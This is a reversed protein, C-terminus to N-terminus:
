SEILADIGQYPQEIPITIDLAEITLPQNEETCYYIDLKSPDGRTPDVFNYQLTHQISDLITSVLQGVEFMHFEEKQQQPPGTYIASQKSFSVTMGGKGTTVQESLTLNWGTLQAIGEILKDPTLEGEYELPYEKFNGNSGIYLQATQHQGNQQANDNEPTKEEQQANNKEPTQHEQGVSSQESVSDKQNGDVEQSSDGAIQTDELDSVEQSQQEPSSQSQQVSTNMQSSGNAMKDKPTIACSSLITLALVGSLLIRKRM